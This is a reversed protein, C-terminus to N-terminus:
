EDSDASFEPTIGNMLIIPSDDDELRGLLDDLLRQTSSVGEITTSDFDVLQQAQDLTLVEELEEVTNVVSEV